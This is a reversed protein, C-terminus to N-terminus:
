LFIIRFFGPIKSPIKTQNYLIKETQTLFEIPKPLQDDAIIEFEEEEGWDGTVILDHERLYQIYFNWSPNAGLTMVDGILIMGYQARTIAVNFRRFDDLFGVDGKENSRVASFIIYPKERGQFGDASSIELEENDFDRELAKKQAIYPTVIGIDTLPVGARELMKVSHKVHNIEQMNKVSGGFIDRREGGNVQYFLLPIDNNPFPISSSFGVRDEILVGSRISDDYFMVSPFYSLKPHMRYQTLLIMPNVGTKVLREFLSMKLGGNAAKMDKCIPGLQKHDGILVVKDGCRSIPILATPEVCQNAEDILVTQFMIKDFFSAGAMGCTTVIIQHEEIIKLQYRRIETFSEEEVPVNSFIADEYTMILDPRDEEIDDKLKTFLSIEEVSSPLCEYATSYVRVMKSELHPHKELIMTAINDAAVNSPACV